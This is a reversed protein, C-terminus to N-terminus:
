IIGVNQLLVIWLFLTGISVVTSGAVIEGALTGDAGMNESMTYANAAVPTAFVIFSLFVELSSFGLAKGTGTCM